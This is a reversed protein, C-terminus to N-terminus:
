DGTRWLFVDEKDLEDGQYSDVMWRVVYLQTKDNQTRYARHDPYHILTLNWFYVHTVVQSEGGMLEFQNLKLSITM